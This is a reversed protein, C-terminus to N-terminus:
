EIVAYSAKSFPLKRLRMQGLGVIEAAAATEGPYEALGLEDFVIVGGKPMRPLLHTLCAKTPDYLDADLYLLAVVIEPHSELYAPVTETIDGSVLEVQDRQRLFRADQHIGALHRMESLSDDAYGGIRMHASTGRRDVEALQPFGAFTDFGVIRRYSNHPELLFSFHVFSFLGAGSLVGAEIISGPVELVLKFMEYRALFRGVATIPVYKSFQDLKDAVGRPSEEFAEALRSLLSERTNSANAPELWREHPASASM